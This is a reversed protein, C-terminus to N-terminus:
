FSRVIWSGFGPETIGRGDAYVLRGRVFTKMV